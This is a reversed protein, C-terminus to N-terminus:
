WVFLMTIIFPQVYQILHMESVYLLFKERIFSMGLFLFEQKVRNHLKLSLVAFIYKKIM